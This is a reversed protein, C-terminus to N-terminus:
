ASEVYTKLGKLATDIIVKEAKRKLMGLLPVSVDVALQYTVRTGGTPDAELVYSGDMSRLMQGSKALTWSVRKDGDWEYALVYEDRIPTADLVFHVEKARHDDGAVVIEAKKMGTAWLPYAEFDAIVNMVETASADIVIDSTTRAM